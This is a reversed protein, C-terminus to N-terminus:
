SHSPVRTLAQIAARNFLNAFYISYIKEIIRLGGALRLCSTNKVSLVVPISFLLPAGLPTQCHLSQLWRLCQAASASPFGLYPGAALWM